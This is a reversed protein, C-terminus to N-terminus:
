VCKFYILTVIKFAVKFRDFCLKSEVTTEEHGRTFAGFLGEHFSFLQLLDIDIFNM